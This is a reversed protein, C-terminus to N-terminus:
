ATRGCRLCTFHRAEYKAEVWGCYPCQFRVPPFGYPPPHYTPAYGPPIQAGGRAMTPFPPPRGQAAPPAYGSPPPSPPPPWAQPPPAYTSPPAAPANPYAPGAVGYSPPGYTWTGPPPVPPAAAVPQRVLRAGYSRRLDQFEEWGYLVYWAFFGSGALDLGLFLLTTVVDLGVGGVGELTLALAGDTAFHLLISAGLGHRVFIYGAGLGMVFVPIAKWWGWGGGEVHALAWLLSSILIFIGALLRVERPSERRLQGGWLQRLVGTGSSGGAPPAGPTPTRKSALGLLLAALMMPVGILFMRFAIEEFVSAASLQFITTWAGSPTTNLPLSAIPAGILTLLFIVAYQFFSGALWVQGVAVWASMSRLRTGIADLPATFARATLKRDRWIYWVASAVIAVVIFAYYALFQGSDQSIYLLLPLPLPLYFYFVADTVWGLHVNDFAVQTSGGGSQAIFAVKLYYTGPNVISASVDADSTTTWATSQNVWAVTTADALNLGQPSSEVAAVLQGTLSPAAGVQVDLHVEALFPASGQLQVPEVWEGAARGAPLTMEVYGGSPGSGSVYTGTAASGNLTQFTWNANGTTFAQNANQGSAIGQIGPAVYAPSLLLGAFNLAIFLFFGIMAVLWLLSRPSRSGPAPPPRIPIPYTAMAVPLGCRPCFNGQFVLGCRACVNGSAPGAAAPRPAAAGCHPCFNGEFTAGCRPCVM